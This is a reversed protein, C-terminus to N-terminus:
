GRIGPTAATASGAPQRLLANILRGLAEPRDEQIFHNAREFCVFRANPLLNALQRGRWSRFVPDRGGWVVLAPEHFAALADRWRCFDADTAGGRRALACLTKGFGERFPQWYVPLTERNIRSGATTFARMALGLMFPRAAKMAADGLLPIALLRLPNFGRGSWDERWVSTNLVVLHTVRRTRGGLLEAAVLAGYDHCVLGCQDIGLTDLLTALFRAQGAPSLDAEAPKASFGFGLLDPAVVRHERGVIRAVDRWLFAQTPIGHLLVVPDGM